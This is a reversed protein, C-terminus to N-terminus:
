LDAAILWETDGKVFRAECQGTALEGKDDKLEFGFTCVYGPKGSAKVCEKKQVKTVTSTALGFVAFPNGSCKTLIGLILIDKRQLPKALDSSSPGGDFCGALLGLLAATLVIRAAKAGIAMMWGEM